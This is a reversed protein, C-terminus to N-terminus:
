SNELVLGGPLEEGFVRHFGSQAQGNLTVNGLVGHYAARKFFM